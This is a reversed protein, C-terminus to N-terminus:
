KWQFVYDIDTSYDSTFAWADSGSKESWNDLNRRFYNLPHSIGRAANRDAEICDVAFVPFKWFRKKWTYKNGNWELFPM